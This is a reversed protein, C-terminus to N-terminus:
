GNPTYIADAPLWVMLLPQGALRMKNVPYNIFSRQIRNAKVIPKPTCQPPLHALSEPKVGVTRAEDPGTYPLQNKCLPIRLTQELNDPTKNWSCSCKIKKSNPSDLM